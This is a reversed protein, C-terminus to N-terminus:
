DVVEDAFRLNRMKSRLFCKYNNDDNLDLGRVYTGDSADNNVLIRRGKYAGPYQTDLYDFYAVTQTAALAAVNTKTVNGRNFTVVTGDELTLIPDLNLNRADVVSGDLGLLKLFDSLTSANTNM